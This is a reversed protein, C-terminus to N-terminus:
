IRVENKEDLEPFIRLYILLKEAISKFLPAAVDGGYFLGKPEDIVVFMTVKPNKSPFFGGFSSVYIKRYKGWKIKKATGTKGAIDIGSIRSKKGTGVNVVDTMISSIRQLTSRDLIKVKKIEKMRKSTIREIIEPKILYGGSAIVNFARVMQIPTVAIEYGHSLYAISVQSWKNLPNLIGREEGPLKVGTKSGFGFERISNYYRRKGVKQGIIAAGINSSYIIIDEFSLRAYPHVDFITRDRIKYVGNYCNFVQQPYCINNGLASAALIIKFTSGPDYLFSIAKNKLIAPDVSSIRDPYFFPYSAMALIDGTESNMVIVTGGKANYMQVTQTLEKEVFYQISSDITLYIDKGQIPKELYKLDFVRHKADTLVEVRGGKGIIESNLGYEIGSLGQEDIGVGGIIHSASDQQPYIRKYEEIYDVVSKFNEKKEIRSLKVIEKDNLKRKIWIFSKGGKIRKRIDKQKKYSLSIKKRVINFLELSEAKNKNSLFVSKTKISIALIEGNADYITGRKPHLKFIRNSQARIRATYKDYNFVQLKILFFVIFSVWIGFFIFVIFTRNRESKNIKLGGKKYM